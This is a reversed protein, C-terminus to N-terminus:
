IHIDSLQQIPDRTLPIEVGEMEKLRQHQLYIRRLRCHEDFHLSFELWGENFYYSFLTNRGFKEKRQAKYFAM